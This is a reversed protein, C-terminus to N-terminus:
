LVESRQRKRANAAKRKTREIAEAVASADWWVRNYNLFLITELTTPAMARRLSSFVLGARSFLREVDNSTAPIWSLDVPPQDSRTGNRGAGRNLAADAFSERSPEPAAVTPATTPRLLRALAAREQRSLRSDKNQVKVIGNEFAPYKVVAADPALYRSTEPYHELVHDFLLRVDALTLGYETQLRKNVSEFNKLHGYLDTLHADERPTPLLDVLGEDLQEMSRIINRREVYRDVMMFTSSWRTANNFVPMLGGLERLRHRNKITNLKAMLKHLKDLLEAHPVLFEKLALNLRHSACGIMPVRAKRAIAGNVSAHDCVMFCLQAADIGYTDLVDDMLQIISDAGMDSEDELTSFCLLFKVNSTVAIIAVFHTGDETWADVLFGIHKGSLQAKIRAQVVEELALMYKKLTKACIPKLNSYKRTKPKECFSLERNGEVCWDIWHYVLLAFEDVKMFVDLTGERKLIRRVEEEYSDAHARHVHEVLNSMGTGRAQKRRVFCLRCMFYGDDEPTYLARVIDRNSVRDSM